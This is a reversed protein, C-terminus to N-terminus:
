SMLPQGETVLQHVRSAESSVRAIVLDLPMGTEYAAGGMLWSLAVAVVNFPATGGLQTEIANNFAKVLLKVQRLEEDSLETLGTIGHTM